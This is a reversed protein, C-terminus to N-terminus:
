LLWFHSKCYQIYNVPNKQKDNFLQNIKEHLDSYKKWDEQAYHLQLELNRIKTPDSEHSIANSLSHIKDKFFKQADKTFNFSESM